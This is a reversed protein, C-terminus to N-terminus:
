VSFENIADFLKTIVFQPVKKEGDYSGDSTTYPVKIEVAYGGHPESYNSKMLKVKGSAGSAARLPQTNNVDKIVDHLRNLGAPFVGVFKLMLYGDHGDQNCYVEEM